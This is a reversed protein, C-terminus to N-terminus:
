SGKKYGSDIKSPIRRKTALITQISNNALEKLPINEKDLKIPARHIEFDM